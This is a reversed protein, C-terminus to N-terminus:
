ENRPNRREEKAIEPYVFGKASDRNEKEGAPPPTLTTDALHPSVLVQVRVQTM